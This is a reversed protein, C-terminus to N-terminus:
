RTDELDSFQSGVHVMALESDAVPKEDKGLPKKEVVSLGARTSASWDWEGWMEGAQTVNVGEAYKEALSKWPLTDNLTAPSSLNYFQSDGHLFGTINLYYSSEAPNLEQGQVHFADLLPGVTSDRDPQSGYTLAWIM